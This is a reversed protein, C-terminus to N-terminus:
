VMLEILEMESEILHCLDDIDAVLRCLSTLFRLRNELEIFRVLDELFELIVLLHADANRVNPAQAHLHHLIGHCNVPIIERDCSRIM